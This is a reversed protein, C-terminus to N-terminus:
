DAIINLDNQVSSIMSVKYKIGAAKPVNPASVKESEGPGINKVYVTEGKLFRGSADYYQLDVMVLDLSVDSINSVNYQVGSSISYSEVDIYDDIAAAKKAKRVPEDKAPITAGENNNNDAANNRKVSNRVGNADTVSPQYKSKDEDDINKQPQTNTTFADNKVVTVNQSLVKQKVVPPQSQMRNIAPVINNKKTEAPIVVDNNAKVMNTEALPESKDTPTEDTTENPLLQINQQPTKDATYGSKDSWKFGVWMGAALITILLVAATLQSKNKDSLPSAKRNNLVTEVYRQKIDDLSQSFKIEPEDDNIITKKPIAAKSAAKKEQEWDLWVTEWSPTEVAIKKSQKVPEKYVPMEKVEVVPAPAVLTEIRNWDAKIKIRPKDKKVNESVPMEKKEAVVLQAHTQPAPKKYFRDFPQEDVAPAYPKLEDFECPYRWAASKGEAWLLDYKKLGTRILEESSYPGTEKNDRLLRYQKMKRYNSSTYHM